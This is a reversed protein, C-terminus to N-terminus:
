VPAGVEEVQDWAAREGLRLNSSWVLGDEGGNIGSQWEIKLCASPGGM